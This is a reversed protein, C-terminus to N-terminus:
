GSKCEEKMQKEIEARIDDCRWYRDMAERLFFLAQGNMSRRELKIIKQLECYMKEPLRVTVIKLTM